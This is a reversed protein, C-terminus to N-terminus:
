TKQLVYGRSVSRGLEPHSVIGHSLADITWSDVIDYGLGAIEELFAAASRVNYPVYAPGIRELTVVSPGDRTAVKNLIITKPLSPLSRVLEAFEIDLYQLLGSCMMVDADGTDAINSTFTIPLGQEAAHKRGAAVMPPLDWVIWDFNTLDIKRSFAVFKTGTHGGADLLRLRRGESGKALRELWLLVPYDWEKTDQMKDLSVHVVDEHNYGAVANRPVASMALSRDPYAGTMGNRRILLHSKALLSRAPMAADYMTRLVSM